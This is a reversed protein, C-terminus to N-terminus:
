APKAKDFWDPVLSTPTLWGITELLEDISVPKTLHEAFGADHSNRVDVEQGFGTLAIGKVGRPALARM